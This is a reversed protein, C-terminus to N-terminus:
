TYYNLHHANKEKQQPSNSKLSKTTKDIKEHNSDPAEKTLSNYNDNFLYLM